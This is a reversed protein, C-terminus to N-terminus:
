GSHHQSIEAIHVGTEVSRPELGSGSVFLQPPALFDLWDPAPVHSSHDYDTGPPLPPHPHPLEDDDRLSLDADGDCQTHSKGM